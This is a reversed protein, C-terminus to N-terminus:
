VEAVPISSNGYGTKFSEVIDNMFEEIDVKKKDLQFETREWMSIELIM